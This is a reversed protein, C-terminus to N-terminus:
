WVKGVKYHWRLTLELEVDIESDELVDGSYRTMVYNGEGRKWERLELVLERRGGPSPIPRSELLGDTGSGKEDHHIGSVM